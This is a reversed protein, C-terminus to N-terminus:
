GDHIYDPLQLIDHILEKLESLAELFAALLLVNSGESHQPRFRRYGLLLSSFDM